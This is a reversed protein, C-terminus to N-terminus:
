AIATFTELSLAALSTKPSTCSATIDAVVEDAVDTNLESGRFAFSLVLGFALLVLEFAGGGVHRRQLLKYISGLGDRPRAGVAVAVPSFGPILTATKSPQATFDGGFKKPQFLSVLTM